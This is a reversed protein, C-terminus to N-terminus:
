FPVRLQGFMDVLQQSKYPKPLYADMGADFCSQIEEPLVSATLAIIATRGCNHEHEWKRIEQTATLGDMIPMMCDMLIASFVEGTKITNVAELGNGVIVYEIGMKSLFFSAIKQNMLNDEVILVKKVNSSPKIDTHTDSSLGNLANTSLATHLTSEFRKGLVPLTIHGNLLIDLEPQAYLHHHLGVVVADSYRARLAAVGKRASHHNSTCYLILEFDQESSALADVSSEISLDLGLANAESEILAQYTTDNSILLTKAELQFREVKNDSIKLPLSFSFTSGQNPKSNVWIDGQMQELLQRCIALGLGTGGFRRTISGDEQTFPKFIQELKSQPIGIGTDSVHCVLKDEDISVDVEIRGVQTFKVANSLLNMLLQKFRFDDLDICHPLDDSFNIHLEIGQKLAKTCVMNITDFVAERVNTPQVSLVLNGSEIKSLDLIDNILLLLLHSSTDIDQLIEKQGSSLHSDSLIETMGIIGNLPTRIEHSMNALFLSKARNAEEASEKALVLNHKDEDQQVIIGNLEKAFVSFEDDGDIPIQEASHKGKLHSMSSLIISLKSNIRHLTSAGWILMLVVVVVSLVILQWFRRESKAMELHLNNKLETSFTTLQKSIRLNREEIIKSFEGGRLAALNGRLLQHKVYGGTLFERSSFVNVLEAVQESDAGQMVFQDLYYQQRESIRYYDSLYDDVTFDLREIEKALWAERGMWLYLWSLDSIVQDLRNVVGDDVLVSITFLEAHLDHTVTHILRGLEVTAATSAQELEALLQQLEESYSQITHLHGPNNLMLPDNLMVENLTVLTRSALAISTKPSQGNISKTLALYTHDSFESLLNMSINKSNIYQYSHLRSHIDSVMTASFAVIVVTPLLCLIFLRSKISIRNLLM